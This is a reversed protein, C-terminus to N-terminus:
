LRDSQGYGLCDDGLDASFLVADVNPGDARRYYATRRGIEAFGAAHYLASAAGNDAAVELHLRVAGGNRATALAGELLRRALGRRRHSPAVALTLIEAEDAARRCLIFGAIEDDEALAAGFMGPTALISAISDASWGDAFCARHLAALAAPPVTAVNAEIM